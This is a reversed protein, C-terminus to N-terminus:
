GLEIVHGISPERNAKGWKAWVVEYGPDELSRAQYCCMDTFYVLLDPNLGLEYVKEFVPKFRTGGGGAVKFEPPMQQDYSTAVEGVVATDCAMMHIESCNVEQLITEMEQIFVALAQEDISGSTDIALVLSGMSESMMSPLYLELDIYRRNFRSYNTEDIAITRFFHRLEEKWSRPPRLINQVKRAINGPLNGAKKAQEAAQVVAQNWAEAGANHDQENMPEMVLGQEEPAPAQGSGSQETNQLNPDAKAQGSADAPEEGPRQSGPGEGSGPQPQGEQKGQQEKGQENILSAYAQEASMGKFMSNYLCDKSLEWGGDLLESNVAYDCAQNWIKFDRGERRLHHQLVLHSVEHALVFTLKKVSQESVWQSNYFQYRGDVSMAPIRNNKVFELRMSLSGYFPEEIILKSRAKTLLEKAQIDIRDSM